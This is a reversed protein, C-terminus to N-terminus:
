ASREKEEPKDGALIDVAMAAGTIQEAFKNQLEEPLKAVGEIIDKELESM